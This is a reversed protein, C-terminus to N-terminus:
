PQKQSSDRYVLGESAERSSLQAVLIRVQVFLVLIQQAVTVGDGLANLLSTTHSGVLVGQLDRIGLSNPCVLPRVKATGDGAIVRLTRFGRCCLGLPM